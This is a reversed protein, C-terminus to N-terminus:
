GGVADPAVTELVRDAIARHGLDNVHVGDVTVMDPTIVVPDILSLYEAGERTAAARVWSDIQEIVPGVAQATSPGVAILRAQPLGERIRRYTGDVADHVAGPDAIMARQDNQGGAILVVDAGTEIVDPVRELYTPCYDLGCGGVGATTVFGTGGQGQNLEVWGADAAVLSSWRKEPTSAGWGETYSDGLFVAVTDGPEATPAPETAPVGAPRGPAAAACGSLTVLVAVAGALALAGRSRGPRSRHRASVSPETM